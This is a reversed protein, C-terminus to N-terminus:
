AGKKKQHSSRTLQIENNSVSIVGTDISAGNVILHFQYDSLVDFSRKAIEDLNISELSVYTDVKLSERSNFIEFNLSELDVSVSGQNTLASIDGAQFHIALNANIKSALSNVAAVSLEAVPASPSVVVAAESVTEEAPGVISLEPKKVQFYNSPVSLKIIHDEFNFRYLTAVEGNEFSSLLASAKSIQKSVNNQIKSFLHQELDSIDSGSTYTKRSYEKSLLERNISNSIELDIAEIDNDLSESDIFYLEIKYGLRDCFITELVDSLQDIGNSAVINGGSFVAQIAQLETQSLRDNM